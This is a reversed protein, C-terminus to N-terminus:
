HEVATEKSYTQYPKAAQKNAIMSYYNITYPLEEGTLKNTTHGLAFNDYLKDLTVVASSLPTYVDNTVLLVRKGEKMYQAFRMKVAQKQFAVGFRDLGEKDLVELVAKSLDDRAKIKSM